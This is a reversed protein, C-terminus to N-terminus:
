QFFFNDVVNILSSTMVLKNLSCGSQRPLPKNFVGGIEHVNDVFKVPKLIQTSVSINLECSHANSSLCFFHPKLRMIM